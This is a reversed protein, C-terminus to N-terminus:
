RPYSTLNMVSPLDLIRFSVGPSKEPTRLPDSSEARLLWRILIKKRPM